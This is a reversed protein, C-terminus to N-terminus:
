FKKITITSTAAQIEQNNNNMVTSINNWNNATQPQSTPINSGKPALVAILDDLNSRESPELLGYEDGLLVLHILLTNLYLHMDGLSQLQNYHNAYMHSIIAFLIRCVKKLESHFGPSFESGYKTPFYNQDEAIEQLKTFAWDVYGPASLLNSKGSSTNEQYFM